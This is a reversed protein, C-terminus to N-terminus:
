RWGFFREYVEDFVDQQVIVEENITDMVEAITHGTEKAIKKIVKEFVDASDIIM